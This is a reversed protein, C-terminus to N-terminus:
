QALVWDLGELMANEVELARSLHPAKLWFTHPWGAIVDVKVEVGSGELLEAYCVGDSYLVDNTCVQIWTRPLKLARIQEVPMELPMRDLGDRPVQRNFRGLLSTEFPQSASMHSKKFQPPINLPADVTVPCRLLIGQVSGPPLSHSLLAALEGGSSSGVIVFKGTSHSQRVAEFAAIVDSVCTQAPVQPMLRYGASYLVISPDVKHLTDNPSSTSGSFHKVLRRCSLDESDAEGVLLGGGHIYFLVIRQQREDTNGAETVQGHEHHEELTYKLLPIQHDDNHLRSPVTLAQVRIGRSLDHDRAGSAMMAANRARCDSAYIPQREIATLVAKPKRLGAAEEHKLWAPDLPPPTELVLSDFNTM